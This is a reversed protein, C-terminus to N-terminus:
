NQVKTGGVTVMAESNMGMFEIADDRNSKYKKKNKGQNVIVAQEDETSGARREITKGCTSHVM